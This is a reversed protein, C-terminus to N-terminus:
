NKGHCDPKKILFFRENVKTYKMEFNFHVLQRIKSTEPLALRFYKSQTSEIYM